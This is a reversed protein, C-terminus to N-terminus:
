CFVPATRRVLEPPHLEGKGDIAFRIAARPSASSQAPLRVADTFLLSKGKLMQPLSASPCDDTRENSVSVVVYQPDTKQFLGPNFSDQHGHHPLKVIDCGEPLLHEAWFSLTADGPLFVRRGQYCLLSVVSLNNIYCDLRILDQEMLSSDGQYLADLIRSQQSSLDKWGQVCELSVADTLRLTEATDRLLQRRTGLPEMERLANLYIDAAEALAKSGGHYKGAKEWPAKAGEPPFYSSVIHQIPCTRAIEALGGVHDKHLHTVLLTDICQVGAWKLYESASIRGRAYGATNETDGCDVLITYVTENEQIERILISDGYGVNIFDLLLM